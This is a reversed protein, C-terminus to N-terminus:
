RVTQLDFSQCALFLYARLEVNQVRCEASKEGKGFDLPYFAGVRLDRLRVRCRRFFDAIEPHCILRGRSPLSAASRYHIVNIVDSGNQSRTAVLLHCASGSPHPHGKGFDLPIVAGVRLDRLFVRLRRKKSMSEPHRILMPSGCDSVSARQSFESHPSLAFSATMRMWWKSRM